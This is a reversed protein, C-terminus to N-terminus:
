LMKELVAQFQAIQQQSKFPKYSSQDIKYVGIKQHEL